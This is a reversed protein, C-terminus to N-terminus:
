AILALLGGALIPLGAIQQVSAAWGRGRVSGRNVRDTHCSPQLARTRRWSGARGRALSSATGRTLADSDVWRGWLLPLWSREAAHRHAVNKKKVEVAHLWDHLVKDDLAPAADTAGQRRAPQDGHQGSDHEERGGAGVLRLGLLRPLCLVPVRLRD